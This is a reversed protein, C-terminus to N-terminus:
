IPKERQVRAFAAAAFVSHAAIFREQAPMEGASRKKGANQEQFCGGLKGARNSLRIRLDWRQRAEFKGGQAGDFNEGSGFGALDKAEFGANRPAKPVKDLSLRGDGYISANHKLSFKRQTSLGLSDNSQSEGFLAAEM